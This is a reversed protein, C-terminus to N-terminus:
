LGFMKHVLHESQKVIGSVAACGLLQCTGNVVIKWFGWSESDIIVSDFASRLYGNTCLINGIIIALTIMVGELCIGIFSRIYSYGIESVRGGGMVTTLAATSFPLTMFMRFLRQAVALLIGAGLVTIIVFFVLMFCTTPLGPRGNALIEAIDADASLERNGSGLVLTCLGSGISILQNTIWDLNGAIGELVVLGLLIKFMDKLDFTHRTVSAEKMVRYLFFAAFLSGAVSQLAAAIQNVLQYAELDAQEPSQLVVLLAKGTMANWMSIGGYYLTNSTDKFWDALDVIAGFGPILLDLLTLIINEM